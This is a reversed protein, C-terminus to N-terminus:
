PNRRNDPTVAWLNVPRLSGGFKLLRVSTDAFAFNAAGRHRTQDLVTLENATRLDMMFDGYGEEKEGFLVTESPEQIFSEPMIEYDIPKPLLDFYDTWANILYSRPAEDARDAVADLPSNETDDPCVLIKLDRYGSRLADPWKNTSNSSPFYGDYDQVYMASALALQRLHDVCTIRNAASKATALVPLLMAALVAIIGIVVLLEILTFGRKRDETLV